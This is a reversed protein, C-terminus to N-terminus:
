SRATSPSSRRRSGSASGASGSSPRPGSTAASTTPPRWASRVRRREGHRGSPPAGARRGAAPRPHADRPAPLARRRGEPGRVQPGRDVAPRRRAGRRRPRRVARAQVADVALLVGRHARVRKAIEAIPQVSGVENNALMISSSSRRTPSRRTSAPRPRRARLPRGAGRRDRLRVARPVPAHPRRRPARGALHRDPPRPGQRGVRRGQDRPQEGRHRGLHLHDRAAGRSTAAAVREHAEDLAARAKRGFGHASSPNGFQETLFPLMADLAEPRLPTTAAHDLYIAMPRSQVGDGPDLRARRPARVSM